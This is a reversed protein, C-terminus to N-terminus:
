KACRASTVPALGPVLFQKPKDWPALLRLEAIPKAQCNYNCPREISIRTSINIGILFKHKAESYPALAFRVESRSKEDTLLILTPQGAIESRALRGEVSYAGCSSILFQKAWASHTWFSLLVLSLLSGV